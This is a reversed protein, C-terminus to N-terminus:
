EDKMQDLESDDLFQSLWGEAKDQGKDRTEPEGESFADLTALFEEVSRPTRQEIDVSDADQEEKQAKHEQYAKYGDPNSVFFREEFVREREMAEMEQRKIFSSAMMILQVDNLDAGHTFLGREHALKAHYLIWPDTLYREPNEIVQTIMNLKSADNRSIHGLTTGEEGVVEIWDDRDEDDLWGQEV